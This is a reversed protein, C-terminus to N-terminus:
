KGTDLIKLYKNYLDFITSFEEGKDKFHSILGDLIKHMGEGSNRRIM